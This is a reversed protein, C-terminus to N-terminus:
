FPIDEKDLDDDFDFPMMDNALDFFVGLSECLNKVIRSYTERENVDKVKSMLKLTSLLEKSLGDIIKEPDM